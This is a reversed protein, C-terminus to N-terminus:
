GRRSSVSPSRSASSGSCTRSEGALIEELRTYAGRVSVGARRYVERNM